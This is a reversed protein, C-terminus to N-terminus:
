FRARTTSRWGRSRPLQLEARYRETVDTALGVLGIVQANADRQPVLNMEYCVGAVMGEGTFPEGALARRVRDLTQPEHKLLWFVSRGIVSGM